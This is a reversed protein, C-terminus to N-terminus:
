RQYLGILTAQSMVHEKIAEQLEEKQTSSPLDLVTDLAYLTFVYRHVGSPPCPPGYGSKKYGTIGESAGPPVSDTPIEHINPAINWVTWHTFNGSPADPDDVILAFSKVGEPADSWTLPPNVGEGDCTYTSPMKENNQFATSTLQM